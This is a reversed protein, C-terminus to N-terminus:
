GWERICHQHFTHGCRLAEAVGCSLPDLCIVCGAAAADSVESGSEHEAAAADWLTTLARVAGGDADRVAEEAVLEAAEADRLAGQAVPPPHDGGTDSSRRGQVVRLQQLVRMRMHRHEGRRLRARSLERAADAAGRLSVVAPGPDRFAPPPMAIAGGGM